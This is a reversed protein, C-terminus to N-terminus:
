RCFQKKWLTVLVIDTPIMIIDLSLRGEVFLLWDSKFQRTWSDKKWSKWYKEKPSLKSIKVIDGELEGQFEGMNVIAKICDGEEVEPFARAGPSIFGKLSLSATGDSVVFVTPGGTQVIRSVEVTLQVKKSNSDVDKILKIKIPTDDQKFNKKIPKNFKKNM